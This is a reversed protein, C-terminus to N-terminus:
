NGESFGLNISSRQTTITQDDYVYDTQGLSEVTRKDMDSRTLATSYRLYGEDANQESDAQIGIEDAVVKIMGQTGRKIMTSMATLVLIVISIIIVYEMFVQAKEESHPSRRLM